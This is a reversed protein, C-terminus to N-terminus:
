APEHKLYLSLTAYDIVAQHNLLADAGLVVTSAAGTDVLVDVRRNGLEGVLQLHRVQNRALAHRRFGHQTLLEDLAKTHDMNTVGPSM